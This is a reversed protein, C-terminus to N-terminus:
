AGTRPPDLRDDNATQGLGELRETSRSLHVRRLGARRRLDKKRTETIKRTVTRARRPNRVEESGAADCRFFRRRKRVCLLNGSGELRAACGNGADATGISGIAIEARRSRRRELFGAGLAYIEGPARLINFSSQLRRTDVGEDERADVRERRDTLQ